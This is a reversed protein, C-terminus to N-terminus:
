YEAPAAPAPVSLQSAAELILQSITISNLHLDDLLRTEPKIADLPLETRRAVLARLVEIASGSSESVASRVSTERIPASRKPRAPGSITECPNEFFTHRRQPDFRRHFRNEFL